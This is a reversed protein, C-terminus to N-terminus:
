HTVKQGLGAVPLRNQLFCNSSKKSKKIKFSIIFCNLSEFIAGKFYILYFNNRVWNFQETSRHVTTLYLKLSMQFYMHLIKKGILIKM